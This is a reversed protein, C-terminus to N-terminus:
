QANPLNTESVSLAQPMNPDVPTVPCSKSAPPPVLAVVHPVPRPTYSVLSETKYALSTSAGSDLMVADQYGLKALAKGLNVSGIPETSVGIQPQGAQNIGWFARHREANFDFLDGFAESPQAETNKVLWAAAVFADTVLPMEAQVGELTNHRDRNFPIFKVSFPSIMVLPRGLLKSMEGRKGSIFKGTFQSFVPGIMKNSDLSELSFFGGDVAAIAGSGMIMEPVQYRTKGHITMPRGGALMRFPTTNMTTDIQRVPATFDFGLRWKQREPGGWAKSLVQPLTSQGFRKIALLSESQGAFGENNDDMTFAGWYGAAQIFKTVRADYNGEPYTFVHIEVGLRAELVKKSQEVEYRLKDDPLQSVDKPHTVSHASITVLPDAAMEKLQAWTIGPRGLKKDLKDTYISFMGPYKYKKLLAYVFEYQGAYGDDFTLLIPKEPLPLGTRLHTLLQDVSIPTLGQKQISQLAAEFEPPTVDFFVEKKARIDHYMMVPVRAQKARDNLAPWATSTFYASINGAFHSIFEDLGLSPQEIWAAVKGLNYNFLSPPLPKNIKKPLNSGASSPNAIPTSDAGLPKDTNTLPTLPDTSSALVPSISKLPNAAPAVPDPALALPESTAAWPEVAACDTPKQALEAIAMEPSALGMVFLLSLATTRSSFFMQGM